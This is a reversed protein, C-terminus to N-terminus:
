LLLGNKASTSPNEECRAETTARYGLESTNAEPQSFPSSTIAPCAAPTEISIFGPRMTNNPNRGWCRPGVVAVNGRNNLANYEVCYALMLWGEFSNIPEPM